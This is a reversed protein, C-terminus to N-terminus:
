RRRPPQTKAAVLSPHALFQNRGGFAIRHRIGALAAASARVIRISRGTLVVADRAVRPLRRRREALHREVDLDVVRHFLNLAEERILWFRRRLLSLCAISNM